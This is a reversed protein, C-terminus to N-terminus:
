VSRYIKTLEVGLPRWVGTDIPFPKGEKLELKMADWTRDFTTAFIRAIIEKLYPGQSAEAEAIPWGIPYKNSERFDSISAKAPMPALWVLGAITAYESKGDYYDLDPKQKIYVALADETGALSNGLEMLRPKLNRLVAVMRGAEPMGDFAKLWRVSGKLKM